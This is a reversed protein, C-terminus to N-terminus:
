EGDCLEGCECLVGYPTTVAKGILKSNECLPKGCKCNLTEWKCDLTKKKGFVKDYNDRYAKSNAPSNFTSNLYKTM